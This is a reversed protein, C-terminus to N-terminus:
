KDSSPGQHARVGTKRPKRKTHLNLTQAKPNLTQACMSAPDPHSPVIYIDNSCIYIM